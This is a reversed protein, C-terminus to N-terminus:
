RAARLADVTARGFQSPAVRPRRALVDFDVAELRDLLRLYLSRALRMGPRISPAVSPIASASEAFLRRARAVEFALMARLAPTAVEAAVDAERAGFRELDERPLYLRDLAYDERVDRLFNTLQFAMGLRAFTWSEAAPAGLLSAMILGVAAASGRMYRELERWTEIRVPACDVRMSSMYVHLEELPLEHRRGADVLAAIVPHSPRGRSLGRELEGEWRDLAEKRAAPHPARRSGDVLQDAIRVFGYLAHVGPRVDPPLRSTALYYTPDYRRQM